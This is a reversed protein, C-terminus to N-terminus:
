PAVGEDYDYEYEYEDSGCIKSATGKMFLVYNLYSPSPVGTTFRYEELGDSWKACKLVVQTDNLIRAIQDLVWTKHHEGDIQGYRTIYEMAWDPQSYNSYPSDNIDVAFEGLYERNIVVDSTDHM